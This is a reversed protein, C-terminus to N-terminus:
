IGQQQLFVDLLSVFFAGAFFAALFFYIEPESNFYM